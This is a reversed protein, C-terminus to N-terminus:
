SAAAAFDVSQSSQGSFHTTFKFSPSSSCSFLPFFFICYLNKEQEGGVGFVIPNKGGNYRYSATRRGVFSIRNPKIKKTTTGTVKGVNMHNIIWAAQDSASAAQMNARREAKTRWEGKGVDCISSLIFSPFFQHATALCFSLCVSLCVDSVSQSREEM